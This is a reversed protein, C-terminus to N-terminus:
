RELVQTVKSKINGDQLYLNVEEGVVVDKVSKVTSGKDDSLYAYGKSIRELPSLRKLNEIYIELKHKSDLLKTEMKHRIYDTVDVKRKAKDIGDRMALNLKNEFETTKSRYTRLIHEPSHRLIQNEFVELRSKMLKIKTSLKTKFKQNYESLKEQFKYYDFVALEAAASPTPARLDAVLDAITTDTEHGVASIIPTKANFIAEAVIRENFPWLDEISGGGRGIIIVDLGMDDLRHISNVISVASEPGQVLTPSLILEVYPNRRRSIQEIDRIAAGTDSTAIGIKKSFKPIKQKYEEAFMGMEELENKLKLYKEYLDGQGGQTISNAYLQYSGTAEYVDISGSVVIEMGEELRFTLSSAKSRWMVCSISASRDKLSFYIHGSGHYKLNSVEGKIKVNHLLYDTSILDKIYKTIWTVTYFSNKKM